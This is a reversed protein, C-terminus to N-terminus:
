ANAILIVLTRFIVVLLPLHVWWYKIEWSWHLFPIACLAFFLSGIVGYFVGISDWEHDVSNKGHVAEWMGWVSYLGMAAILEEISLLILGIIM